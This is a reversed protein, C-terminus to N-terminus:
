EPRNSITEAYRLEGTRGDFYQFIVQPQPYAVWREGGLQPPMNFVNNIQAVCYFPYLRQLRPLDPLIYSSWRIDCERPGSKFKGTIPRNGEDDRPVHNVSNHPGSAFEWLRDTIKIAFSNHLDATLIFVPKGLKDWAEIMKEREDLLATWAEDKGEAFEHGGGGVHPVMFNVSSVVFFFDADSARMERLLWERQATGHMTVGPKMPDKPDHMERHSKLDLLFFDCNSVRFKSYCRRGISYSAAGDAYAAPRIRLRHRDLVEAIEFVGANPDGPQNDLKIDDVGANPTGWHVHLNATEALDLKTFDADADTLVDSGHRLQARGFHINQKFAIPNAWGLYDFWAQIGIDRFVARRERFGATGCGRIDNVLEHDDFIFYGPVRRHWEALNPARSLYTKYNEWVGVITPAVRVVQPAQAEALGVQKLWSAPPYERNEEYIFDGNMISFHVKDAVDRNMTTYTPLSPGIGSDPNQNACSGFAFRFNFLGRPNHGANRFHAAGPLTHFTGPPGSPKGAFFAQFYHRTDPPLGRLEVWGTNDHAIDTMAAASRQELKAANTGYRIEFEGPLSTRTWIRVTNETVGGLLPGHTIQVPAASAPRSLCFLLGIILIKNRM